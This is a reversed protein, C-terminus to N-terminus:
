PSGPSISEEGAGGGNGRASLSAVLRRLGELEWECDDVDELFGM